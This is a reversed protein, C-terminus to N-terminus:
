TRQTSMPNKKEKERVIFGYAASSGSMVGPPHPRTAIADHCAPAEMPPTPITMTDDGHSMAWPPNPTIPAATPAAASAVSQSTAAPMRSGAGTATEPIANQRSIM